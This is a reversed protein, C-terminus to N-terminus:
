LSEGYMGISLRQSVLSGRFLLWWTERKEWLWERELRSQNVRSEAREGVEGRLLVHIGVLSWSLLSTAKEGYM